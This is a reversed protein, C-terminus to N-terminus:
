NGRYIGISLRRERAIKGTFYKGHLIAGSIGRLAGILVGGEYQPNKNKRYM